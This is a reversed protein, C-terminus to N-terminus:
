NRGSRRRRRMMSERRREARAQGKEVTTAGGDDSGLFGALSRITPFRYLDTLSLPRELQDRLSRHIQVILLSHGGLDFFNDDIGVTELMLRDKWAQAITAELESEPAVFTQQTRPKVRDPAPLAKRDIKGNPTLPFADLAVFASPIMYEPLTERLHDRLVEVAPAEGDAVLYAVLRLDGSADESATVACERVRPQRGLQTEIEGLEIRHGRIKVQHDIRGLFEVSGDPRYRALDGTRYLRAGPADRFPDPIIREQTLEPRGHYGRVVGEGGIYLEGDVGAPVPELHRDLIYLQTNAIPKGIPISDPRGLVPQTSSWITAETPGYMNTVDGGVAGDLEAALAVPFTEGGIMLHRIRGLASRTENDLVMMKAMSPTCQMHTVGYREIQLALSLEKTSAGQRPRNANARVENLLKLSECVKDTPVGYDLLCAIEDVGIEKVREVMKACTGPTGFLGSTEFYREFAYDLIAEMEEETLSELDVEDPSSGPGGPRKFAPFAWAFGKILNVSSRLYDKMPQRVLERVADDDEGVFTHLMLTVKGTEPDHGATERAKRYAAIKEGVEQVTQGLLHTLVNAGAAGATEYTAVNGATTIWVPLEPQVPRPLTTTAVMTGMPNPFEVAEGRWLRQVIEIDRLMSKKADKFNEPRIVFDNPQWGAAFSIAVRGNSLNDVLAWEEAVRIPHHLPLVCSGARIQVRETVAAIAASAVSPNPYPGGFSHFHREPTSISSFGNADAFRASELMLDYKRPGQGDDNGWLFIGFDLPRSPQSRVRSGSLARDHDAYLVVNFGRALTWHLELVSIDFSLSTVALWVGPPDHPIREDMAAIFNVVNRHEVMVGKPTGTSGSTYIVYALDSSVAASEVNDVSYRAITEHAGDLSVARAASPPLGSALSEQTLLVAVNSDEIMFRIRDRPYAPDLPVYAGGAKMVALTSIVMEPSRDTFIGVLEGPGVGLERLHAALQNARANLEAYTLTDEEFTIAPAAPGRDVQAEFLEHVCQDAPYERGTANWEYLIRHREEDGLVSIEALPREIAAGLKQLFITFQSLVADADGTDLARSDFVLRARRGDETTVLALETGPPPDFEALDACQAVMVPLLGGSHLVTNGRLEPYRAVADRMFTKRKRTRELSTEITQLVAAAADGDNAVIRLPVSPAAFAESGAIRNALAADRFALDFSDRGTLRALYAGFAAILADGGTTNEGSFRDAFARPVDLERRHHDPEGSRNRETRLYPLDVPDMHALRRVWFSEARCLDAHLETLRQVAAADLSALQGGLRIGLRSAIPAELAAGHATALGGLWLAGAGTAVVLADDDLELITGPEADVELDRLEASSVLYVEDGHLLKAAGFANEYHGFDLARVMAELETAPRTWDLTCAALPRDWKAFYRKHALDQGRPQTTGAALAEVLEAFSEIGAQLCKTNLTVSTEGPSIEIAKQRLLDGEDIGAKMEHWSIAYETEGNILAWTPTFLGAYHPLPGDHFNIAAVRPLALVADPLIKFNAISFLYDFPRGDLSRLLDSKPDIPPLGHEDAWRLVAPDSSVVGRIEHSERLLIEACEILLSQSGLVVCSFRNPQTM